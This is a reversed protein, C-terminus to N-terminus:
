SHIDFRVGGVMATVNTMDGEFGEESGGNAMRYLEVDISHLAEKGVGEIVVTVKSSDPVRARIERSLEMLMLPTM